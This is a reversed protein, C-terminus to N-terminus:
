QRKSELMSVRKELVAFEDRGVKNRLDHKIFEIDMKITEVDDAIGDVKVRLGSLDDAVLTLKDDFSEIMAGVETATFAKESSPVPIKNKPSKFKM